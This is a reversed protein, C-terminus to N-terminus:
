PLTIEAPKIDMQQFIPHLLIGLLTYLTGQLFPFSVSKKKQGSFKTSYSDQILMFFAYLEQPFICGLDLRL